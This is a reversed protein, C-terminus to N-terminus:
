EPTYNKYTVPKGIQDVVDKLIGNDFYISVQWAGTLPVIVAYGFMKTQQNNFLEYVEIAGNGYSSVLQLQQMQSFYAKYTYGRTITPDNGTELLYDLSSDYSMDATTTSITLLDGASVLVSALIAFILLLFFKKM